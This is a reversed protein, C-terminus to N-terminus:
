MAVAAVVVHLASFVVNARNFHITATEWATSAPEGGTGRRQASVTTEPLIWREKQECGTSIPSLFPQIRGSREAASAARATVIM